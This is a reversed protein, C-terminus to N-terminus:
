KEIERSSLKDLEPIPSTQTNSFNYVLSLQIFFYYLKKKEASGYLFFTIILSLVERGSVIFVKYTQTESM